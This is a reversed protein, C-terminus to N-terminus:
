KQDAIKKIREIILDHRAQSAADPLLLGPLAELFNRDSLLVSCRLALYERLEISAEHVETIIEPRGDLVTIVDEIDRSILYDNEGRSDFAELKTALFCTAHLFKIKNGSPLTTWEATRFAHKFWRNGFGLIKSDTPMVDLIIDPSKWRCLPAEEGTDETFGLERLKGSLSYYEVLTTVEVLVDVDITPRVPSAAPDTILLATASGGVFVIDEILESLSCAAAELIQINPNQVIM